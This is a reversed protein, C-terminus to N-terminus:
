EPIVDLLHVDDLILLGAPDVGPSANFYNWYNMVGIAEGFNYSLVSARTWSDKPGQFRVVPIGQQRGQREVQQALQKNGAVYAVPGGNALRFDEGALLGILTKGTGTPLDIAADGTAAELGALIEQQWPWLDPIAATRHQAFLQEYRNAPYTAMPCLM